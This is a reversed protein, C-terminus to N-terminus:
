AACEGIREAFVPSSELLGAAMGVWQWGQGPFVFAVRDSSGTAAGRVVGATDRGEALATLGHVLATRDGGLVVARREFVARTTVLSLGVDVSAPGAEDGVTSLLRAAQDRLGADSRASVVWPVVGSPESTADTAADSVMPGQELIVHANTGSVGFSSVGARRPRGTEPWPTPATLLEVAGTSWDVHPSPEDIHLTQPLLGHRMALVSKIVGAVGAAAQTHGINSKISGLWLPREEPREQGYTALLAQAEIPDGLTTGTGHAEVTDVDAASLRANALAARIVRQQSPGSPATLGNSAGDQNVASGRVVALVQHGNRRADSVRELLLLGVGEGWGTGDAGAAFAKCRGDAALGRQRSFEVFLEPTSMVTVGGALALSCEGQRLSQAALHLAVLSSSCATDVTVAPGEFGFTYSIRGSVVSAASSTVLHGEIHEAAAQRLSTAYDQGNSGVFVGTQSGRLLTPDIGAREFAEWSTELLLRQQPDMAVAERPSIGFFKPDFDGAGELFGGERVYSKGHEDPDPGYLADLDWGRDAPFGTLVERGAALLQWLDEPTRVGGPFRCSMAVIAIPEDETAMAVPLAADAGNRLGLVETRLLKVLATATPHDFLLTSPLSLGTAANLRNRLNVAALSDFGLEKFARDAEIAEPRRHGLVAAVHSRVFELLVRDQETTGLGALRRRLSGETTTVENATDPSGHATLAHLLRRSRTDAMTGALTDWEVDAVILATTAPHNVSQELTAVASEPDMAPLGHRRWRDAVAEAMGNDAWPGWAVSTAPLGAGRRWQALADLTANAAAYNAQGAAGVTGSFSSFLVFASLDLERTLEHLHWAAESKARLVGEFRGVSLGDLVGDDLVGAAHVVATLPFEGPVGALVGALVGRDGVDCAVVTVRAGVERLEACLEDVGEAGPGRRSLLLLHEAGARALWRAVHAGLAGTGGTVLVTGSPEWGGVGRAGEVARVVRRGFVGSSRVAAETEDARGSVVGVLRDAVRADWVEPLDLLGGWREPAELGAVRGLGWVAAQEVGSPNESGSVAVAGRTVCWVRGGVGADGIGQLLSFTLALGLPVSGYEGHRGEALALLSVVGAADSVEAEELARRLRDAMVARDTDNQGLEVVAPRAGCRALAAVCDAVWEDWASGAPVAMLWTGTLAAGVVDSVPAWSVQYRRPDAARTLAPATGGRVPELWFRERQFAYTPLEVRRPRAPALLVSWDVQRGRVYIEALADQLSPVEYRGARLVSAFVADSVCEQGMGSLVGDPGLELFTTVGADALSRVGDAFRVAERVHRVWYEASYLAEADTVLGTVNSVVPIRPPAYSLGEAVGRFEALMPEMLPSHFAHSVRLRKTKVGETELLGAVEVVAAEAGSIVTS